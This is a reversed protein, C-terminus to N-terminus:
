GTAREIDMVGPVQRLKAQLVRLEETGKVDFSIKMTAIEQKSVKSTLSKIDINKESFVKSIDLFIGTRNQAYILVEVSYTEITEKLSQWEVPILRERENDPLHIINVCDTRHVSVGHGRTIFGVIEDGPVPMCCRMLRIAVNGELGRVIVGNNAKRIKVKDPTKTAEKISKILEEDTMNKKQSKKYEDLLKNVIQGEKLGGLGVTALLTDWGQISYRRLVKEQFEPRNIKALEVGKARSDKELLEKGRAINEEKSQNRFWQNIKNKAQVTHVIRLWDMSPGTSNQSVLVEVRDANQIVYDIPVSKGNVKAGVMKNGIASHISYAFDIVNSGLPLSKVDGQPTFCYVRGSLLDFEEKIQKLFQINDKVDGMTELVERLWNMKQDTLDIVRAGNGDEKYKWHAAIGYEAVRHMEYTRIQVEFPKGDETMVTTHISSYQNAKPGAIYDKFRSQIPRYLRHVIGLAQYCEAVEKVIVRVAFLDYIQDLTKNQRTMKKYISFFHKVRGKVEGKVYADKLAASIEDVISNVFKQRDSKELDIGRVLEEYKEPQLYRLAYDDLEVKIKSIGLRQAIPAYIEMTERAKEKQKNPPQYQLTRMNHLRDALKIIMVRVDKSMAFFMKRLNEAQISVRDETLSLKTLKTVGDVLNAIEKGFMKELDEYSYATDEIVDHMLAAALTQADMNLEALIIAVCIPHIIYPEGSKRKQNKHADKAVNYAKDIVALETKSHSGEVKRILEMYLIDPDTFDAPRELEGAEAINNVLERGKDM